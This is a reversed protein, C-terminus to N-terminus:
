INSIFMTMALKENYIGTKINKETDYLSQLISSLKEISYKSTYESVKKYRYDSKVGMENMIAAKDMNRQSYEKIGLMLEFQSIILGLLKFGSEGTGMINNILLMSDGKNGRSLSDLLAFADTEPSTSLVSSVDSPNVVQESSFSAIKTIDGAIDNLSYDSDRDFYGTTNIIERIVGDDALKGESKFRKKIFSSLDKRELRTFNYAKGIQIIKKTLAKRTDVQSGTFILLTTSPIDDMYKTLRKVEEDSFTAAGFERLAAVGGSPMLGPFNRVTVVRKSSMMPLTDSHSIIDDVTTVDGELLTYDLQSVAPNVYTNKLRKEYSKVLYDEHGYFLIVKQQDLEDGAIDREIRRYDHEKEKYAM